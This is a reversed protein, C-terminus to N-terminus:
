SAIYISIYAKGRIGVVLNDNKIISNTSWMGGEEEWGGGYEEMKKTM